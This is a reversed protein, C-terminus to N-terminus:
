LNRRGIVHYENYHGIFITVYFIIFLIITFILPMFYQRAMCVIIMLPVIYVIIFLIFWYYFYNIFWYCFYYGYVLGSQTLSTKEGRLQCLMLCIYKCPLVHTVFCVRVYIYLMRACLYGFMCVCLSVNIM